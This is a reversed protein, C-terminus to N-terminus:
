NTRVIERSGLYNAGHIASVIMRNDEPGYHGVDVYHDLDCVLSRMAQLDHLHANPHLAILDALWTRFTLLTTLNGHEAELMWSLASYPPLFFEFETLPHQAVLQGIQER